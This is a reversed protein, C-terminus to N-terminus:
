SSIENVEIIANIQREIEHAAQLDATLDASSGLGTRLRLLQLRINELAAVASARRTAADRRARELDKTLEIRRDLLTQPTNALGPSATTAHPDGAQALAAELQEERQRLAAIQARLREIVGRGAGLQARVVPPLTDFLGEAARALM